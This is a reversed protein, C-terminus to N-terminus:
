WGDARADPPVARIPELRPLRCRQWGYRGSGGRGHAAAISVLRIMNVKCTHFQIVLTTKSFLGMTFFGLLTPIM